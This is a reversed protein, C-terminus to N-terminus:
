RKKKDELVIETVDKLTEWFGLDMYADAMKDAIEEMDADDLKAIDEDCFHGKLDDRCVSTICFAGPEHQRTM